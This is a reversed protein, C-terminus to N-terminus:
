EHPNKGKGEIFRVWNDHGKKAEGWTSYRETEEDWQGGFIMTEFILPKGNGLNHDSGLFITSIRVKGVQTDGVRRHSDDRDKLCWEAWTILDVKVANKNEDLIYHRM